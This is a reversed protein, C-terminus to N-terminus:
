DRRLGQWWAYARGVLLDILSAGWLLLLSLCVVYLVLVLLVRIESQSHNILLVSYSKRILIQWLWEVPISELLFVWLKIILSNAVVFVFILCRFM